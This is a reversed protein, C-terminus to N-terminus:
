ALYLIYILSLTTMININNSPKSLELEIGLAILVLIEM